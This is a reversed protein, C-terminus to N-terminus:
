AAVHFLSCIYFYLQELDLAYISKQYLNSRKKPFSHSPLSSHIYSHSPLRYLYEIYIDFRGNVHSQQFVAEWEKEQIFHLTFRTRFKFHIVKILFVFCLFLLSLECFLFNLYYKYIFIFFIRIFLSQTFNPPFYLVNLLYFIRGETERKKKM